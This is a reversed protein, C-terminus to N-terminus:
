RDKALFIDSYFKFTKHLDERTLGYDEPEYQHPPHTERGNASMWERAAQEDEPGVTLGMENLARRFQVIPEAVLDKYQIDIFRGAPEEARVQLFWM